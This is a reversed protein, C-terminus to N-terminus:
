ASNIQAAHRAIRALEFEVLNVPCYCEDAFDRSIYSRLVATIPDKAHQICDREVGADSRQFAVWVGDEKVVSIDFEVQAWAAAQANTTDLVDTDADEREEGFERYPFSAEEQDRTNNGLMGQRIFALLSGTLSATPVSVSPCNRLNMRLPGADETYTAVRFGFSGKHAQRIAEDYSKARLSREISKNRDDQHLLTLSYLHDM